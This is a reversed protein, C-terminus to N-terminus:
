RELESKRYFIGYLTNKVTESIYEIIIEKKRVDRNRIWDILNGSFAEVFFDVLFKKYEKDLILNYEKEVTELIGVMIERFDGQFFSKLGERGLCDYACNLLYENQEVYNMVFSIAEQYDVVLNIEKVVNVAETDITWKLLAYIDEFHYYFTKRNVGCDAVIESITIKSLPKKNMIKKLSESLAKKTHFSTVEHKMDTGGSVSRNM